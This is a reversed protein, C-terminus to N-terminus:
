GHNLSNWYVQLRRATGSIHERVLSRAQLEDGDLIANLINAHETWIEQAKNSISLYILRYHHLLHPALTDHIYPNGSLKRILEHFDIDDRVSRNVELNGVVMNYNVHDHLRDITEHDEPTFENNASRQAALKAAYSDLEARVEFIQMMKTQDLEAVTLSKSNLGTLIGQDALIRLAHSVPQRSVGLMEALKEQQLKEGPLLTGTLIADFLSTKVSEVLDLPKTLKQM